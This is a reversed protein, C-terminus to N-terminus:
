KKIFKISKGNVDLLYIGSTLSSVNVTVADEKSVTNIIEAGSLSLVSIRSGKALNSITMTNMVPEMNISVDSEAKANKLGTDVDKIFSIKSVQNITAGSTEVISFTKSDDASLLYSVNKLAVTKGTNTVLCWVLGDANVTGPMGVLFLLLSILLIKKMPRKEKIGCNNIEKKDISSELRTLELTNNGVLKGNQCHRPVVMMCDGIHLLLLLIESYGLLLIKKASFSIISWKKNATTDKPGKFQNLSYFM